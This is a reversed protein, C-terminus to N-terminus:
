TVQPLVFQFKSYFVNRFVFRNTPDTNTAKKKKKKAPSYINEDSSGQQFCDILMKDWAETVCTFSSLLDVCPFIEPKIQSSAADHQVLMRESQPQQSTGSTRVSHERRECSCTLALFYKQHPSPKDPFVQIYVFHQTEHLSFFTKIIMSSENNVKIACFYM